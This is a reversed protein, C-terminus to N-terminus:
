KKITYTNNEKTVTLNNVAAIQKLIFGISDNKDFTGIFYIKRVEDKSYLINVNYMKSLDDFISGLRQNNFMFWPKKYNPVAPNDVTVPGKVIDTEFLNIKANGSKIDYILEQGPDLFVNKIMKGKRSESTNIVVKGEYLRVAIQPENPIATVMFETGIDTTYIDGSYVMFPKTSDKIVKFDAKGTLNVERSKGSYQEQYTFESGSYLKVQSGDPLHILRTKGTTNVEHLLVGPQSESKPIVPDVDAKALEKATNTNDSFKEVSFFILGIISAAVVVAILLKYIKTRNGTANEPFMEVVNESMEGISNLELENQRIINQLHQWELNIDISNTYDTNSLLKLANTLKKFYVRNNEDSELWEDVFTIESQNAENLIYKVLVEDYKNSIEM